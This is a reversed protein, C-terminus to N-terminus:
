EWTVMATTQTENSVVLNTVEDCSDTTFVVEDSTTEVGLDCESTVYVEYNTAPDLGTVLYDTASVAARGTVVPIDSSPDDGALYVDITFNGVATGSATWSVLATTQTFADVSAIVTDCTVELTTFSEVASEVTAGNYGC